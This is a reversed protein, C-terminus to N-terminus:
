RRRLQWLVMGDADGPLLRALPGVRQWPAGPPDVVEVRDGARALVADLVGSTEVATLTCVAYTLVGGPVLLDVQASVLDTQLRALREPADPDVRWRADPRRRLSGLGSCPADVLVRDVTEPRLPPRTGDARVVGVRDGLGLRAVNGALLRARNALVDGAVVWAGAAALGTAKGGPAASLDVVRQGPAAGVAAVVLQSAPDQVYRDPRRWTTAPQNMAALAALAHERGLDATLREVIWDPYSLRTADDPWAPDDLAAVKRLVANVVSRGRGRVAGVTASVAAHAPTGLFQLQYAGVRLAARVTPEVPGLLFGDVLADCARRMRTTGYVLETVLARDEPGLGSAALLRPVLLNAYAGGEDIRVLAEIALRRTAVGPPCNAAGAPRAGRRDRRRTASV